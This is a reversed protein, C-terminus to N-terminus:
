IPHLSQIKDFFFLRIEDDEIHFHRAKVADLCCLHDGVVIRRGHDEQRSEAIFVDDFLRLLGHDEAIDHLRDILSIQERGDLNCHRLKPLLALNHIPHFIHLTFEGGSLDDVAGFPKQHVVVM